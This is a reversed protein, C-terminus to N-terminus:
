IEVNACDFCLCLWDNESQVHIQSATTPVTLQSRPGDVMLLASYDFLLRGGTIIILTWWAWRLSLSEHLRLCSCLLSFIHFHQYIEMSCPEVGSTMARAAFEHILKLCSHLHEDSINLCCQCQQPALQSPLQGAFQGALHRPLRPPQGHGSSHPSGAAVSRLFQCTVVDTGQIRPPGFHGRRPSGRLTAARVSLAQPAGPGELLDRLSCRGACGLYLSCIM